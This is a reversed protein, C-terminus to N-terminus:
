SSGPSGGSTSWCPGAEASTVLIAHGRSQGFGVRGAQRSCARSKVGPVINWRLAGPSSNSASGTMSRRWAGLPLTVRQRYSGAVCDGEATEQYALGTETTLHSAGQELDRRGLKALLDRASSVQSDQQQVFGERVLVDVRREMAARVEGAFGGSSLAAGSSLLQRIIWTAGPAAAQV